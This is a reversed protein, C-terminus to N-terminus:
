AAAYDKQRFYYEALHFSMMQVRAVNDELHIFDRAKQVAGKENQKLACVITYYKVEQYNIALSSRDANRQQLELDKLLPYALSYQERQFFEKAQKFTAQPDSIVRTQQAFSFHFIGLLTLFATTKKM